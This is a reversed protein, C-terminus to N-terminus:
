GDMFSLLRLTQPILSPSKAIKRERSPLIEPPLRLYSTLASLTRVPLKRASSNLEIRVPKTILLSITAELTFSFITARAVALLTPDPVALFLTTAVEVMFRIM